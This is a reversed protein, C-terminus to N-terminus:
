AKRAVPTKRRLAFVGYLVLLAAAMTFWQLAYARHRDAGTDLPPWDRVFGYPSQPDLYVVLPELPRGLQGSLRKLDIRQVVKPWGPTDMEGLLIGGKPPPRLTGAIEVPQRPTEVPPLVERSMGQPVWGRNVLLWRKSGEVQFPTLVHFGPRGQHVQNDLFILRHPDFRGALVVRRYPLGEGAIRDLPPEQARQAYLAALREKEAARHLQWVGLAIFLPLLLLVALAPLIRSM